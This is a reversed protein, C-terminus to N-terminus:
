VGTTYGPLLPRVLQRVINGKTDRVDVRVGQTTGPPSRTPVPSPGRGDRGRSSPDSVTRVQNQNYTSMKPKIAPAVSEQKYSPLFMKISTAKKPKKLKKPVNQPVNATNNESHERIRGMNNILGLEFISKGEPQNDSYKQYVRSMEDSRLNKMSDNNHVDSNQNLLYESTMKNQSDSGATRSYHPAQFENVSYSSRRSHEGGKSEASYEAESERVNQSPMDMSHLIARSYSANTASLEEGRGEGLAWQLAYVSVDNDTGADEDPPVYIENKRKSEPRSRALQQRPYEPLPESAFKRAKKGLAALREAKNRKEQEADEKIKMAESRWRRRQEKAFERGKLQRDHKLKDEQEELANRHAISEVSDDEQDTKATLKLKTARERASPVVSVIISDDPSILNDNIKQRPVIDVGCSPIESEDYNYTIQDSIPLNKLYTSSLRPVEPRQSIPM